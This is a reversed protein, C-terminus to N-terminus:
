GRGKWAHGSCLINRGTVAGCASYARVELWILVGTALAEYAFVAGMGGCVVAICDTCAGGSLDEVPAAVCTAFENPRRVISSQM